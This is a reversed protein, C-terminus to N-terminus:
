PKAKEEVTAAGGKPGNEPLTGRVDHQQNGGDVEFVALADAEFLTVHVLGGFEAIRGLHCAAPQIGTSAAQVQHVQVTSKRALGLIQRGDFGDQLFITVM